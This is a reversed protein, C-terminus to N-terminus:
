SVRLFYWHMRINITMKDQGFLQLSFLLFLIQPFLLYHSSRDLSFWELGLNYAEVAESVASSISSLEAEM